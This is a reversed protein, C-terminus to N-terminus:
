MEGTCKVLVLLVEMVARMNEVLTIGLRPTGCGLALMLLAAAVSEVVIQALMPGKCKTALLRLVAPTIM